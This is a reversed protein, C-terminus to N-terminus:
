EYRFIVFRLGIGMLVGATMFLGPVNHTAFGSLLAGLGYLFVGLLAAKRAGIKRITRAVLIGNFSICAASLSGVFALTSPKALGEQVLAAQIVGWSYAVGIGWFAIGACGSVAWWGYGGEPLESDVLQSEQFINTSSQQSVNGRNRFTTGPEQDGGRPRLEIQDSSITITSNM